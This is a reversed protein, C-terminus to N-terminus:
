VQDDLSSVLINLEKDLRGSQNEEFLSKIKKLNVARFTLKNEIVRFPIHLNSFRIWLDDNHPCLKIYDDSNLFMESCIAPNIVIGGSGTLLIDSGHYGNIEKWTEYPYFKNPFQIDRRIIKGRGGVIMNPYKNSEELLNSLWNYPYLIDDDCIIIKSNKFLHVVPYLKKYSKIDKTYIVDIKKLTLLNKCANNFDQREEEAITIIIKADKPLQIYISIVNLYLEKFRPKFSTLSIILNNNVEKYNTLYEYLTIIRLLCFLSVRILILLIKKFIRKFGILHIKM